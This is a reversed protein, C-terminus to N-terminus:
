GKARLGKARRGEAWGGMGGRGPCGGRAREKTRRWGRLGVPSSRRELEAARRRGGERGGGGSGGRLERRGARTRGSGTPMRWDPRAGWCTGTSTGTGCGRDCGRRSASFPGVSRLPGVGNKRQGKVVVVCPERAKLVGWRVTGPTCPVAPQTMTLLCAGNPGFPSLM